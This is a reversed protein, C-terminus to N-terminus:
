FWGKSDYLNIEEIVEDTLVITIPASLTVKSSRLTCIMCRLLDQKSPSWGSDDFRTIGSGLLPLVVPYGSYVRSIERWLNMLCQEYEATSLHAENINNFHSFALLLFRGDYRKITGLEYCLKGDRTAFPARLSTPEDVKIAEQLEDLNDVYNVIFNGNLSQTSIVRDDVETDYFENFPIVKWGNCSFLDGEMIRVDNSGVRLRVGSKTRMSKYLRIIGVLCLYGILVLLILAPVSCKPLLGRASIGAISAVTGVIAFIYTALSFSDSTIKSLGKIRKM